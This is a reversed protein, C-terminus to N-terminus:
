LNNGALGNYFPLMMVILYEIVVGENGVSNILYEGYDGRDRGSDYEKRYGGIKASIDDELNYGGNDVSAM